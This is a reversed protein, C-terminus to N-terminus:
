IAAGNKKDRYKEIVPAYVSLGWERAGDINITRSGPVVVAGPTWIMLVAAVVKQSVRV